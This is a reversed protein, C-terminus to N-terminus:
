KRNFQKSLSGDKAIFIVKKETQIYGIYGAAVGNKYYHVKPKKM